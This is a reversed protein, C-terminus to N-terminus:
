RAAPMGPIALPNDVLAAKDPRGIGPEGSFGAFLEAIFGSPVGKTIMVLRTNGDWGAPPAALRVPESMLSQVAHLVLPRTPDDALRVIGKMRLLNPGHASRLLDLFMALNQPAISQASVLTDARIHADHRNVDHHHGTAHGHEHRHGDAREHSRGNSVEIGSAESLWRGVDISRVAPDYAGTDFLGQASLDPNEADVVRAMPNLVQLRSRLDDGSAALGSKSIVLTDAVAVQRRAEEHADLTSLGNVADVVTVLGELRYSQGLAPHGIVSQMVPVPDALGTTEIVVRSFPRIKGTQMRDMLDSLTDVLEGRVTCCLCGDSLEIVGDGSSEVLLHDIGVDGFENIILAADSLWPDGILRNLLTTKGAGLFGTLISVPIGCPASWGASAAQDSM